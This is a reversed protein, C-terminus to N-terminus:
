PPVGLYLLLALALRAKTGVAHCEELRRVEEITWTHFERSAYKLRRVDRCPNAQLKGNEVAWGFAASLYSLRKNAAGHKDGAADRM